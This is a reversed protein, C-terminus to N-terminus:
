LGFRSKTSNYNQLVETATLARNYILANSIRGNWPYQYTGNFVRTGVSVVQASYSITVPGTTAIDIVGNRYLVQSGGVTYVGVLNVWTAIPFTTASILQTPAITFRPYGGTALSLGYSAAGGSNGDNCKWLITPFQGDFDNLPNYQTVYVWASLTVSTPRLTATDSISISQNAINSFVISNNSYTPNNTLTGNNGNPTTDYWISTPTFTGSSTFTHITYGAVTTVTGGSAKQPGSYRVIVIGSGGNGGRNNSNYHSGGGGGGGTNAGADGGPTNTQSVPSGGGGASGNNLGAGGVTVGVAGGGGGGIGGDGGTSATFASGGGGGAFYYPSMTPYIIGPGGNPKVGNPGAHGPGSTGRGGAGGGGGSYHDDAGTTPNGSNGGPFGQGSVNNATSGNTGDVYREGGHTYGSCGGGSGGTGGIGSNPLYGYYSSAGFGGGTATISGFVSNGGQTASVTYQHSNPQPGVGDGRYTGAAPAGYGGNGVTVAVATGQTVAYSPNYIVGGGGGGGGMDMGGGGGGAVVLVEVTSGMVSNIDGADLSLVIGNEIINPGLSAAM